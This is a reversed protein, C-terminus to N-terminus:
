VDIYKDAALKSLVAVTEVHHTMPYIDHAYISGLIYGSDLLYATDRALSAPNCSIYIISHAGTKSIQECARRGAGSRPPDLLIIDPHTLRSRVTNGLSRLVKVVGGELVTVNDAGAEKLNRRANRVAAPAGEVSLIEAHPYLAAIPLTFLGSGSYLDWIVRAKDAGADAMEELATGALVEPAMRHMQWFGEADVHYTFDARNNLIVRETLERRGYLVEGNVLVAYNGSEILGPDGPRPEPASIRIHDDPDFPHFWLGHYEAISCLQQSALPMGDLAVRTHSERRRMSLHGNRNAILDLRTRWHLGGAEEDGPAPSVPVSVDIHGLRKMQENIVAQKWALQGQRSVHVLDAGGVGGGWALPGALPWVPKVRDPSAAIVEIVEGTWFRDKRNHPEDILIRVREGPLAFRVFVVRGDIHAVCRGQDAYCEIEAEAEIRSGSAEAGNGTASATDSATVINDM